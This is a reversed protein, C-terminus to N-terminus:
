RFAFIELLLDFGYKVPRFMFPEKAPSPSHVHVRFNSKALVSLLQELRQPKGFDSHYEVFVREVNQLLEASDILLDVEAGEVDLKLLDVPDQLLDKLRISPVRQTRASDEVVIKGADSGESAFSVGHNDTWLAAQIVEVNNATFSQLNQRLFECISPDAEFAHITANPFNRSFYISALGINAGGDIIRPKSNITKFKYVEQGFISKLQYACSPGSPFMLKPGLIFTSGEQYAPLQAIRKAEVELDQQFALQPYLRKKLPRKLSEPLWEEAIPAAIKYGRSAVRRTFTWGFAERLDPPSLRNDAGIQCAAWDQLLSADRPDDRILFDFTSCYNEKSLADITPALLEPNEVYFPTNSRDKARPECYNLVSPKSGFYASYPIHSGHGNTVMYEFKGFLTAMRRLANADDIGAGKVVDLGLESCLRVLRGKQFCSPHLCVTVNDFRTRLRQIERLFEESNDHTDLYDLSHLPMVLLSNGERVVRPLQVYCIPLGIAKASSYGHQQLFAEEDRRAVWLRTPSDKRITVGFLASADIQLSQLTWGHQWVGVTTLPDSKLKCYELAVDIAGYSHSISALTITRESPLDLQVHTHVM